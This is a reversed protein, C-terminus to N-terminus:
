FQLSVFEYEYFHFLGLTSTFISGDDAFLKVSPAWYSSGLELLLNERKTYNVCHSLIERNIPWKSNPWLEWPFGNIDALYLSFVFRLYFNNFVFVWLIHWTFSFSQFQIETECSNKNVFNKWKWLINNEHFKPIYQIGKTYKCTNCKRM